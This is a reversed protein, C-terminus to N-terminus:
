PSANGALGAYKLLRNLTKAYTKVFDDPLAKAEYFAASDVDHAEDLELERRIDSITNRAAEQGDGSYHVQIHLTRKQQQRRRRRPM